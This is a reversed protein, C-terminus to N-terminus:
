TSLTGIDELNKTLRMPDLRCFIKNESLRNTTILLYFFTTLNDGVHLKTVLILVCVAVLNTAGVKFSIVDVWNNM